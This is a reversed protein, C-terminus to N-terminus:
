IYYMEQQAPGGTLKSVQDVLQELTLTALVDDIATTLEQNLISVAIKGPSMESAPTSEKLTLRGELRRIIDGIVIDRPHKTLRYGGGSGVKSELFGGRRLALLISEVFKNPLDELRTLDKSQVYTRPALRALQVIARLGYETRKSLRM